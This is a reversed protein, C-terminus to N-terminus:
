RARGGGGAEQNRKGILIASGVVGATACILLVVQLIIVGQSQAEEHPGFLSYLAWLVVVIGLVLNTVPNKFM